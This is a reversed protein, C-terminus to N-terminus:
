IFSPIEIKIFLAHLYAYICTPSTIVKLGKIKKFDKDHENYREECLYVDKEDIETPRGPLLLDCPLNLPVAHIGLLIGASCGAALNHSAM